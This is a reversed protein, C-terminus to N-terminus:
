GRPVWCRVRTNVPLEGFRQQYDVLNRCVQAPDTTAMDFMARYSAGPAGQSTFKLVYAGAIGGDQLLPAFEAPLERVCRSVQPSGPSNPVRMQARACAGADGDDFARVTVVRRNGAKGAVPAQTPKFDVVLYIPPRAAGAAVPALAAVLAAALASLFPIRIM